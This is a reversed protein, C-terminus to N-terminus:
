SAVSAAKPADLKELAKKAALNEAIKKRPGKAHACKKGMIYVACVFEKKHEPGSESVTRYEPSKRHEKQVLEQLRSKYDWTSTDEIEIKRRLIYREIFKKSTEFGMELYITGVFAELVAGVLTDRERGGTNEEGRSLLVYEGFGLERAIQALYVRSVIVSKLKSLSGEALNPHRRYLSYSVVFGILSDGLFELREYDKGCDKENSFSKHIFAQNILTVSDPYLKLTDLFQLLEEKRQKTIRKM